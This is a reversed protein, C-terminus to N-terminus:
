LSLTYLVTANPVLFELSKRARLELGHSDTLPHWPTVSPARTRIALEIFIQQVWAVPLLYSAQAMALKSPTM